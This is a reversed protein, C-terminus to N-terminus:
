WLLFDRFFHNLGGSLGTGIFPTEILLMKPLDCNLIRVFVSLQVTGLQLNCDWIPMGKQILFMLRLEMCDDFIRLICVIKISWM